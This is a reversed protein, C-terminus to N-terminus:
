SNNKRELDARKKFFASFFHARKTIEKLYFIYKCLEGKTFFINVCSEVLIIVVNTYSNRERVPVLGFFHM